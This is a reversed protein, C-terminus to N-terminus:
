LVFSGGDPVDDEPPLAERDLIALQHAIVVGGIRLDEVLEVRPSGVGKM